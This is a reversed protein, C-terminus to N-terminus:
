LIDDDDDEHDDDNHDAALALPLPVRAAKKVAAANANQVESMTNDPDSDGDEDQDAAMEQPVLKNIEEWAKARAQINKSSGKSKQVKNQTREMIAVARDQDRLARKKARTSQNRGHKQKKSVGAGQHIALISPRHNISEPPPRVDKLSKDTNISPSTARRAERSHKSPAKKKSVATKAM